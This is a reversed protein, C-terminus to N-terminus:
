IPRLPILEEGNKILTNNKSRTVKSECGNSPEGDCDGWGVECSYLGIQENGSCMHFRYEPKVHVREEEQLDPCPSM